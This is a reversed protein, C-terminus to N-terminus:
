RWANITYDFQDNTLEIIDNEKFHYLQISLGINYLFFM